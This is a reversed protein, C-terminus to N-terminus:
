PSCACAGRGRGSDETHTYIHTYTHTHTHTHTDHPFYPPPPSHSPHLRVLAAELSQCKVAGHLAGGTRQQAELRLLERLQAAHLLMSTVLRDMFVHSCAHVHAHVRIV